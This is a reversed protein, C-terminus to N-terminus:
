WHNTAKLRLLVHDSTYHEIFYIEGDSYSGRELRRIAKDSVDYQGNLIRNIANGLAVQPRLLLEEKISGVKYKYVQDFIPVRNAAFGFTRVQGNTCGTVRDDYITIEEPLRGTGDSIGDLIKRTLPSNFYKDELEKQRALAAQEELIPAMRKEELQKQRLEEQRKCDDWVQRRIKELEDDSNKRVQDSPEEWIEEGKTRPESFRSGSKCLGWIMVVGLIIFFISM